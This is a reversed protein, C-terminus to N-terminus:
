RRDSAPLLGAAQLEEMAGAFADVIASCEDDGHATTLFCPFGEYLHIGRDRVAYFFLDAFPVDSTFVPRWVSAFHRIELPVHLARARANISAALATTRATLREQLAPGAASLAELTARAAALALPHRVFTGAFYTVGVSPVSDDGYQWPGGDLADMFEAKGAIVGIPLGGGVIKGFTSLDPTIGFLEQAGGPAARFGTVIEDWICLIGTRTCLERVQALFEIPQFDPRRSQVPEILVAAIDGARAALQALAEPTGYDLLLMNSATEAMIGPAAPMTKGARGARVIVEDNIGHYSGSFAAVLPRGTVTRAIRLAGLVAESGTNCLAVREARVMARLREAVDGALVHQPGVEFGRELQEHLAEVVPQPTWGLLCSGFGCLVDIYENGDVDWVRAGRSREVVIPYVLEKTLPRFGTVARPDAMGARHTATYQKSGATRSTYRRVFADVRARQRPTLSSGNKVTIRAAAGFAKSADYFTRNPGVVPDVEVTAFAPAPAPAPPPAPAPAPAAASTSLASGTATALQQQIVQQVMALQQAFLTGLDSSLAGGVPGPAALASSPASPAPMAVAADASEPPASAEAPDPPLTADLYAVVAEMSPTSELLQRFTLKTGLRRSLALAIQTLVLSDLGLQQFTVGADREDIATGAIDEVVSAVVSRLRTCRASTTATAHATRASPLTLVASSPTMADNPPSACASAGAAAVHTSRVPDVWVRLRDLPAPAVDVRRPRSGRLRAFDVPQGWCWLQAAATMMGITESESSAPLSPVARVPTKRSQRRSIASLAGGPGVELCVTTDLDLATAIARDYRVTVRLHRAWYAPDTAEVDSLRVGTVSSIIPIRPASLPIERVLTGFADLVPDMMSSHFAHSTPLARGEIGESALLAEVLGITEATGALVCQGPGNVAALDAGAPVRAMLSEADVPVALMRGRPLSWMLAGRRCVLRMGDEVTFVGALAAAVFEGVSHGILRDPRVGWSEWLCALAYSTAFLAPQTFSTNDLATGEDIQTRLDFGAVDRAVNACRDFAERFVPSADYLARGMGRRQAGQGPVLMTLSPRAGALGSIDVRGALAGEAGELSHAVIARRHAWATRGAQLSHAVRTLAVRARSADPEQLAHVQDRLASQQADAAGDTRGSWVIVEPWVGATASPAIAPLAPAEELIIHANTGGVGFSSVAALRPRRSRPWAEPAAHVHFPSAELQLQPNPASFHATGPVREHRLALAAKLLGAAGAAIVTHGIHGKASGLRCVGGERPAKGYVRRLAEVEIPDGMPTATGHAEVLGIEAASVRADALAQTIVETQGHVSPATFSAREAGDNNLGVGRIVALIDDGDAVADRLRKLVLVAAGDSFVTGSAKADFPRTRGDASLMGGDQSLYGTRTPLTLSVGGALAVDCQGDRLSQVALCTAVLSTSCATHVSIAPGRLGLRHAVRTAVYDKENLLMANFAGYHEVLEPRVARARTLYDSNYVGGYVGIRRGTDAGALGARDLAEWALEVWLRQQPDTLQAERPGINFAAADFQEVDEIIGRAAVYRPDTRESAPVGEDLGDTGFVSIGDRAGTLLTWYDALDRVGGPLRVAAAVVAIRRDADDAARSATASVAAPTRAADIAGDRAATFATAAARLTVHEFFLLPSLAVAHQTTLRATARVLVLSTAGQDFVNVTPDIAQGLLEGLVAVLAHEIEAATAVRATSADISAAWPSQGSGAALAREDITRDALAQRDVKGNGTLPLAHTVHFSAPLMAPPLERRVLSRLADTLAALEHTTSAGTVVWAALSMSQGHTATVPVVAAATIAPHTCLVHEIEVLEIRHGGIKLQRDTRGCFEVIGDDRQRVQDGTRYRLTGPREPDDTFREATLAAAGVYGLAVGDGGIYLEGIMGAAVPAGHADLIACSTAAIPTGIPIGSATPPLPNPIRYTLAFTTTETPGYGNILTVSPVAQQLTRVHRVSLSEGGILLEDLGRLQEPAEDVIANFLGATLWATTVGYRRISEGVGHATPIPEPHMVLRGGTLWAGWIEFTAADFAHPAAQLVSRGPGLQVYDVDRVLRLIGRQAVVVGKPEGTSGSTFMVYAPDDGRTPSAPRDRRAATSAPTSLPWAVVRHAAAAEALADTTALVVPRDLQAIQRSWRAPPSSPDLPVYVGGALLVALQLIAAEATRPLAYVVEVGPTVGNAELGTAMAEAASRLRGYSWERGGDVLAISEPTASAIRRFAAAVSEAERAWTIM